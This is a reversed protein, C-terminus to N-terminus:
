NTEEAGALFRLLDGAPIDQCGSANQGCWLPTFDSNGKAEAAQRLVTVANAASPFPPADTAIPGIERILRNVIGRAPRGTFVNTLATHAAEDSKLAARHVASTKAEPCLLFATGVQVGSAGLALAARVGQASAIGGAAIVPLSVNACVQPILSVSGSQTTMDESLFSGRHGGAELGQAIIADAGNDALWGAEEVTTATSIVKSGSDKVRQVWDPEPLGFHFSVVAPRFKEVIALSEESFPTRQLGKAPEPLDIGLQKFYTELQAHWTLQQETTAVVPEHCFFNLNFPRETLSALKSVEEHLAETSLMACPLSGLGGANSVAAALRADQVGAMPAQIIPLETNFLKDIM